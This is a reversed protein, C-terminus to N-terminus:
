TAACCTGSSRCSTWAPPGCSSAWAADPAGRGAAAPGDADLADRMTRFKIMRFPVGHRGPREQVFWVPSGLGLRVAIGIALLLPALLAVAAAAVVLDFVRKM